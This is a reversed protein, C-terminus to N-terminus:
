FYSARDRLKELNPEIIWDGQKYLWPCVYGEEDEGVKRRSILPDFILFVRADFSSCMRPKCLARDQPITAQFPRGFTLHTRSDMRRELPTSIFSSDTRVMRSM